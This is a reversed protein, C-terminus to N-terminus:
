LWLSNERSSRTQSHPHTYYHRRRHNTVNITISSTPLRRSITLMSFHSTTPSYLPKSACICSSHIICIIGRGSIYRKTIHHALSNHRCRSITSKARVSAERIPIIGDEALLQAKTNLTAEGWRLACIESCLYTGGAGLSIHEIVVWVNCPADYWAKLAGIRLPLM